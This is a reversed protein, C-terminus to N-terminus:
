VTAALCGVHPTCVAHRQCASCGACHQHASCGSRCSGPCYDAARYGACRQCASYWHMAFVSTATGLMANVHQTWSRCSSKSCALDFCVTCQLSTGLVANVLQARLLVVLSAEHASRHLCHEAALCEACRQCASCSSCITSGRFSMFFPVWNVCLSQAGCRQLRNPHRPSSWCGWRQLLQGWRGQAMDLCLPACRQLAGFRRGLRRFPKLSLM